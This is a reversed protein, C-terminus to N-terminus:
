NGGSHRNRMHSLLKDKRYFGLEGKYKCGPESCEFPKGGPVHKKVHRQLDSPRTFTRSCSPCVHGSSAVTASFTNQQGPPSASHNVYSTASAITGHDITSTTNGTTISSPETAWSGVGTIPNSDLRGFGSATSYNNAMPIDNFFPKEVTDSRLGLYTSSSDYIIYEGVRSHEHNLGVSQNIFPDYVLQRNDVFGVNSHEAAVSGYVPISTRVNLDLPSLLEVAHSQTNNSTPVCYDGVSKVTVHSNTQYHRHLASINSFAAGCGPVLCQFLPASRCSRSKTLM